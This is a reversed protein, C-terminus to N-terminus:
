DFFVPDVLNIVDDILTNKVISDILFDRHLSPSTNVELLWCKLDRDIIIDYGFLEFFNPPTQHGSKEQQSQDSSRLPTLFSM